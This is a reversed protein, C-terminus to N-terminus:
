QEKGGAWDPLAIKHKQCWDFLADLQKQTPPKFHLINTENLLGHNIKIWGSQEAAKESLGFQSALWVHEMATLCAYFKGNPLIWGANAELKTDPKPKGQKEREDRSRMDALPDIKAINRQMLLAMNMEELSDFGAYMKVRAPDVRQSHYVVVPEQEVYEPSGYGRMMKHYDREAQEDARKSLCAALKTPNPDPYFVGKAPKWKDPVLCFQDPDGKYNAFKLNGRLLEEQKARPIPEGASMADLVNFAKDYNGEAWM